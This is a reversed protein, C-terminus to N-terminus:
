RPRLSELEQEASRRRIDAQRRQHKKWQSYGFLAAIIALGGFVVPLVIKLEMDKQKDLSM